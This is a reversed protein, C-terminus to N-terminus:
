KSLEYKQQGNKIIFQDSIRLEITGDTATNFSPIGAENVRDVVEQAPHNYRNNLGTSYIILQPNVVDIFSQSTSTKSGHHGAKLLTTNAVDSPNKRVLEQEGEKELDGPIIIRYGRYNIVLVLSDNNGEYELDYPMVYQFSVGAVQWGDGALKEKIPIQQKVSEEKLDVMVNEVASSPSIHIEKVAVEQMVEEAGEVHDADAHTIVMRDIRQIGRGKLYPVIVQRGVEYDTPSQRWEDGSFRLLGGSDILYVRQRNPLEILTSDGQGVSLFTIRLEDHRTMSLSVFLCFIVFLVLASKQYKKVEFSYFILLVLLILLTLLLISPRGPNWMQYPISQLWLIMNTLATRIPEYITTCVYFLPPFIYSLLLLLLNIPLIIYSFLPVFVLNMLFSSLSIEYFHYLLLPSVLLQCSFTIWLSISYWNKLSALYRASLVIAITALFSLQFGVQYIMNPEIAVFLIFCVSVAGELPIKFRIAQSLMIVLVTIVSRWVSPAGGAIIAYSPLAVFLILFVTEKRVGFRLLIQQFLISVLAVHLGSIAFLHTIGLKQYARQQQPDVDQQDGILLAKAESVLSKPFYKEIQQNMNFRQESLITMLTTKTGIYQFSEVEYIGIARHSKLYDTMKFAYEHFPKKAKKLEGKALFKKGVLSQSTYWNKEEASQLKYSVYIKTGEVDTMFGRVVGGKVHGSTTWQLVMEQPLKEPLKIRETTTVYFFGGLLLAVIITM